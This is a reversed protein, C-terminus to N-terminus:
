GSAHKHTVDATLAMQLCDRGVTKIHFLARLNVVQYIKFVLRISVFCRGIMCIWATRRNYEGAAAQANLKM